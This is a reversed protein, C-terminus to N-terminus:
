LITSGSVKVIAQNRTIDGGHWARQSCSQCNLFSHGLIVWLSQQQLASYFQSPTFMHHQISVPCLVTCMRFKVEFAPFPASYVVSSNPPLFGLHSAHPDACDMCHPWFVPECLWSSHLCVAPGDQGRDEGTTKRVGTKKVPQTRGWSRSQLTM